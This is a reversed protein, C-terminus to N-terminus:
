IINSKSINSLQTENKFFDNIIQTIHM